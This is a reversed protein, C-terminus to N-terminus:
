HIFLVARKARQVQRALRLAVELVPVEADLHPRQPQKPLAAGSHSPPAAATVLLLLRASDGAPLRTHMCLAARPEADSCVSAQAHCRRVHCSHSFGLGQMCVSNSCRCVRAPGATAGEASEEVRCAACFAAAAAAPRVPGRPGSNEAAAAAAAAGAPAWSSGDGCAAATGSLAAECLPPPGTLAPGRCCSSHCRIYVRTYYFCQLSAQLAQAHRGGQGARQRSM